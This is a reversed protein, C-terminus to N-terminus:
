TSRCFNKALSLETRSHKEALWGAAINSRDAESASCEARGFDNQGHLVGAWGFLM